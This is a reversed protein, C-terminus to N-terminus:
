CKSYEFYEFYKFDFSKNSISCSAKSFSISKLISKNKKLKKKFSTLNSCNKIDDPLLNWSLAARHKFSSRGLEKRPIHVEVNLSKRFNYTTEPKTILDNLPEISSGHYINYTIVLLRKIYFSVISNWHRANMIDDRHINNPLNDIIRTASLHIRDSDDDLSFFL